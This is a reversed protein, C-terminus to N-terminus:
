VPGAATVAVGNQVPEPVAAPALELAPAAAKAERRKADAIRRTEIAKERTAKNNMPFNLLELVREPNRFRCRPIIVIKGKIRDIPRRGARILIWNETGDEDITLNTVISRKDKNHIVAKFPKPKRVPKAAPKKGKGKKTELTQIKLTLENMTKKLQDIQTARSM